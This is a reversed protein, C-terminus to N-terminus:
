RVLADDDVILVTPTATFRMATIQTTEEFDRNM